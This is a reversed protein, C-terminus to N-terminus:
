INIKKNHQNINDPDWGTKLRYETVRDIKIPASPNNLLQEKPGPNTQYLKTVKDKKPTSYKNSASSLQPRNFYQYLNYIGAGGVGGAMTWLIRSIASMDKPSFIYTAGLTGLGGIVGSTIAGSNQKIWQKM